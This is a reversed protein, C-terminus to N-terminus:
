GKCCCKFVSLQWLAPLLYLHKRTTAWCFPALALAVLLLGQRAGAGNVLLVGCAHAGALVAALPVELSAGSATLGVEVFFAMAPLQRCQDQRRLVSALQCFIWRCLHRPAGRMVRASALLCQQECGEWM